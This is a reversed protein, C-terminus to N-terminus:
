SILFEDIKYMVGNFNEISFGKEKEFKRRDFKHRNHDIFDHSTKDETDLYEDDSSGPWGNFIPNLNYCRIRNNKTKDPRQQNASPQRQGGPANGPELYAIM